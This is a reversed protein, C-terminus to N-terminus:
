EEGCYWKMMPFNKRIRGKEKRIKMQLNKLKRDSIGGNFELNANRVVRISHDISDLLDWYKMVIRMDYKVGKQPEITWRESMYDDKRFEEEIKEMLSM